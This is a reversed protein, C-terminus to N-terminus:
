TPSGAPAGLRQRLAERARTLRVAVNNVTIGLVDAIERDSLGELRLVVVGSLTEPLQQITRRLADHRAAQDVEADPLPRPDPVADAAELPDGEPRRRHRYTLARNRAVRYVFTRESCDGRFGPLADWIAIAIEQALDDADAADRAYAGALRRLAVGYEALVREIPEAPM